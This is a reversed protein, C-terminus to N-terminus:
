FMKRDTKSLSDRAPYPALDIEDYYWVMHNGKAPGNEVLTGNVFLKYRSDATIHVVYSSKEGEIEKRFYFLETENKQYEAPKFWYTNVNEM